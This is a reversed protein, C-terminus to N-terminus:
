LIKIDCYGFFILLKVVKLCCSLVQVENHNYKNILMPKEMKVM